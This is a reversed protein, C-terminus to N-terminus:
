EAGNFQYASNSFGRRDTSLVAGSVTGNYGNGSSDNANGEFKYYGLQTAPFTIYKANLSDLIGKITTSTEQNKTLIYNGAEDYMVLSLISALGIASLEIYEGNKESIRSIRGVIGTYIQVGSLNNEDFEFVKIM